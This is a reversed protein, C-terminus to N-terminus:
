SIIRGTDVVETRQYVFKVGVKIGNANQVASNFKFAVCGGNKAVGGISQPYDDDIRMAYLSIVEGDDTDFVPIIEVDYNRTPTPSAGDDLVHYLSESWLWGSRTGNEWDTDLWTGVGDDGQSATTLVLRASCNSWNSIVYASAVDDDTDDLSHTKMTSVYGSNNIMDYDTPAAQNVFVGSSNAVLTQGQTPTGTITVDSLDNLSSAGGGGGSPAYVHQTTGNITIDAINTAGTSTQIQSWSVTDGGGGGGTSNITIKKPNASDDASITVNSGADIELTADGSAELNTTTGGSVIKMTGFTGRNITLKNSGDVAFDNTTDVSEFPKGTVANWAVSGSVSGDAAMLTWNAGETPTVGVTNNVKCVWAKGDYRVWDLQNYTASGSYTGKPMLLVKGIAQQSM